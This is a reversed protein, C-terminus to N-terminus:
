GEKKGKYESTKDSQKLLKFTVGFRESTVFEERDGQNREEKERDETQRERSAETRQNSEAKNWRNVFVPANTYRPSHKRHINTDRIRETPQCAEVLAASM